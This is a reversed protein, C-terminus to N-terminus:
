VEELELLEEEEEELLLVVVLSDREQFVPLRRQVEGELRLEAELWYEVRQVLRLRGQLHEVASSLM